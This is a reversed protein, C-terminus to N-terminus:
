ECPDGDPIVDPYISSLDKDSMDPLGLYRRLERLRIQGPSLEPTM